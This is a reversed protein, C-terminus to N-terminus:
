RHSQNHGISLERQKIDMIKGNYRLDSQNIASKKEVDSKAQKSLQQFHDYIRKLSM